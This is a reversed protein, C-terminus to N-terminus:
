RSEPLVRQSCTRSPMISQTMPTWHLRGAGAAMVDYTKRTAIVCTFYWSSDVFM